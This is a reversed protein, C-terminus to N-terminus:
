LAVKSAQKARDNAANARTPKADWSAYQKREVCRVIGLDRQRGLKALLGRNGDRRHVSGTFALRWARNRLFAAGHAWVYLGAAVM